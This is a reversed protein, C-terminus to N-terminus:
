VIVVALAILFFGGVVVQWYSDAKKVEVQKDVKM